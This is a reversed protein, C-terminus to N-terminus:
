SRGTPQGQGAQYLQELRGGVEAAQTQLKQITEALRKGQAEMETIREEMFSVTEDNTKRVSIDSGISVLVSDPDIVKALIAAGGGLPLLSVADTTEKLGRLTEISIIMEMRAQEIFQFQRSFLEIQQNFENLYMQLAQFEEEPTPTSDKSAM